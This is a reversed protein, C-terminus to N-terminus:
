YFIVIFLSAFSLLHTNRKRKFGPVSWVLESIRYSCLLITWHPKIQLSITSDLLDYFDITSHTDCWWCWCWDYLFVIYMSQCLHEFRIVGTPASLVVVLFHRVIVKALETFHFWQRTLYVASLLTHDWTEGGKKDWTCNSELFIIFFTIKDIEDCHINNAGCLPAWLLPASLPGDLGMGVQDVIYSKLM